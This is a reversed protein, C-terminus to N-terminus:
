KQAWNKYREQNYEHYQVLDFTFERCQLLSIVQQFARRQPLYSSSSRFYALIKSSQVRRIYVDNETLGESDFSSKKNKFAIEWNAIDEVKKYLM